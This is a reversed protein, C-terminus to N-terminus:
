NTLMEAYIRDEKLCFEIDCPLPNGYGAHVLAVLDTAWDHLSIPLRYLKESGDKNRICATPLFCKGSPNPEASLNKKECENPEAAFFGVKLVRYVAGKGKSQADTPVSLEPLAFWEALTTVHPKAM